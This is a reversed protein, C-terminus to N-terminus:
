WPDLYDMNRVSKVLSEVFEHFQNVAVRIDKIMLGMNDDVWNVLGPRDEAKTAYKGYAILNSMLSYSGETM